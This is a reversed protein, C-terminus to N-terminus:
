VVSKRDVGYKACLLGGANTAINGGISSIARSAPDPAFWYGLPRLADNLDGNIVGPGVVALEDVTSIEVITNLKMTSLVIEGGGAIAGGALGTGAGRTVVPISHESAFRMLAQVEEITTPTVVALPASSSVHGSKDERTANVAVPSLSVIKGLASQLSLAIDLATETM